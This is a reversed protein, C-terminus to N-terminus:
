QLGPQDPITIIPLGVLLLQGWASHIVFDM